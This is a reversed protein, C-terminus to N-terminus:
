FSSQQMAVLRRQGVALLALSRDRSSVLPMAGPNHRTGCVFYRTM